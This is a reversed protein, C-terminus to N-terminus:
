KPLECQWGTNRNCYDWLAAYGADSSSTFALPFHMDAPARDFWFTGSPAPINPVCALWIITDAGQEISRLTDKNEERFSTLSTQVGPTDSWGPHMSAFTVTSPVKAWQETLMMQARKAYAYQLTGDFSTSDPRINDLDLKVCLGGGSSVNIVRGGPSLAPLLLGTLMYSQNIATAWSAEMGDPTMEMTKALM